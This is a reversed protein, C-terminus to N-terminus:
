NVNKKRLELIIDKEKIFDNILDYKNLLDKKSDYYIAYELIKEDKVKKKIENFDYKGSITRLEFNINNNLLFTEVESKINEFSKYSKLIFIAINQNNNTRSFIHNIIVIVITIIVFALLALLYNSIGILVGTIIAFLIFTIDKQETLSSRFRVISLIGFIGFFVAIHGGQMRMLVTMLITLIPITTTLSNDIKSKQHTKVYVFLILCGFIASLIINFLSGLSLIQNILGSQNLSITELFKEWDDM